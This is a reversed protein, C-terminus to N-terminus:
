DGEPLPTHRLVHTRGAELSLPARPQREGPWSVQVRVPGSRNGLGFLLRAENQNGEGTGAELQRVAWAREGEAELLRVRAGLASRGPSELSFAIWPAGGRNRLLKGASALDPDGDRDFDAWAAQYTPPLGALGLAASRDEFEWEGLNDFLAPHNPRGFSATGYVTTFWLDLDGDNDVDAAAPTAYSEQYHVGCPGRDDFVFGAGPGLNALFRSKPQDGRADVHAFNGAFLDLWGDGDFDGWAAGISHAGRFGPSTALAGRAAAADTLAGAGDNVWLRNPQLRYNSVYVDLDGDEDFDAASVGRAREPPHAFVLEFGGETDNRLLHDPYTLGADWDEYGGVYVDPWGDGDFDGLAAGRSRTKPTSSSDLERFAGTGDNQFVRQQEFAFLDLDGDLDLDAFLGTALDPGREFREGARNVWLQGGACLEPWADGHVDGWASPANALGELGLELTADHFRPPPAPSEQLAAAPNASPFLACLSLWPHARLM